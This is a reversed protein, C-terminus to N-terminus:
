RAVQCLCAQVTTQLDATAPISLCSRLVRKICVLPLGHRSHAIGPASEPQNMVHCANQTAHALGRSDGGFHVQSVVTSQEGPTPLETVGLQEAFCM